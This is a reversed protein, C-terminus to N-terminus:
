PAPNGEDILEYSWKGPRVAGLCRGATKETMKPGECLKPYIARLIKVQAKKTM